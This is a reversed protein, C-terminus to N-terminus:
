PKLKPQSHSGKFAEIIQNGKDINAGSLALVPLLPVCEKGLGMIYGVTFCAAVLKAVDDDGSQKQDNKAYYREILAAYDAILKLQDEKSVEKNFVADEISQRKPGIAAVFADKDSNNLLELSMQLNLLIEADTAM